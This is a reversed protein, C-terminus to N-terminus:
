YTNWISNVKNESAVKIDNLLGNLEREREPFLLKAREYRRM